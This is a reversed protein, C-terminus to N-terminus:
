VCGFFTLDSTANCVIFANDIIFKLFKTRLHEDAARAIRSDGMDGSVAAIFFVENATGAVILVFGDLSADAFASIEGSTTFFSSDM